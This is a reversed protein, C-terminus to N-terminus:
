TKALTSANLTMKTDLPKVHSSNISLPFQNEIFSLHIENKLLHM